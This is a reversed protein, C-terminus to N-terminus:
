REYFLRGVLGALTTTMWSLTVASHDRIGVAGGEATVAPWPVALRTSSGAQLHGHPHRFAVSQLPTTQHDLTQLTAAASAGWPSKPDNRHTPFDLRRPSSQCISFGLCSLPCEAFTGGSLTFSVRMWACRRECSVCTSILFISPRSMACSESDSFHCISGASKRKRRMQPCTTRQSGTLPCYWGTGNAVTCTM